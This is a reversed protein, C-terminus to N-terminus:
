RHRLDLTSSSGEAPASGANCPTIITPCADEPLLTSGAIAKYRRDYTHFHCDTAGPPAVAHPKETGSSWKVPEAQAFVDPCSPEPSCALSGEAYVLSTAM